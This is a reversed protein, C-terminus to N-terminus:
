WLAILQGFSGNNVVVSSVQIPLVRDTSMLVVASITEGSTTVFSNGGINASSSNFIVASNYAAVASADSQPHITYTTGATTFLGATGTYTLVTESTVSAVYMVNGSTTSVNNTIMIVDGARVNRTVFLGNTDTLTNAASGTTNQSAVIRVPVPLLPAGNNSTTGIRQSITFLNKNLIQQAM